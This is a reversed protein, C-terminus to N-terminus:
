LISKIATIYARQSPFEVDEYPHREVVEQISWGNSKLLNLVKEVEFYYFDMQVSTGLFEDLHHTGQGVHFSFLFHGGPTLVRNVEQFALALEEYTFHVIGFFCLANSFSADKFYLQLMDGSIFNISAPNITQAVQVMAPSLDLGTLQKIGADYLFRTTQGPGCALDLIPGQDAHEKAFRQLLLRDLSKAKLEGFFHEAYSQATQDYANQIAEKQKM